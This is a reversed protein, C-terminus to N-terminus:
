VSRLQPRRSTVCGDASGWLYVSKGNCIEGGDFEGFYICVEEARSYVAHMHRIQSSKEREHDQDICVADIWIRRDSDTKRVRRLAHWLNQTIRFGPTGNVTITRSLIPPGCCYSLADFPETADLEQVTLQGCIPDGFAGAELRFIRIWPRNRDPPPQLETFWRHNTHLGEARPVNTDM